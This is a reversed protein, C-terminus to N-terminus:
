RSLQRSTPVWVWDSLQKGGRNVLVKVRCLRERAGGKYRRTPGSTAKESRRPAVIHRLITCGVFTLFDRAPMSGCAVSSTRSKEICHHFFSSPTRSPSCSDFISPALPSRKRGTLSGLGSRVLSLRAADTPSAPDPSRQYNALQKEDIANDFHLHREYLGDTGRFQIPDCGYQKLLKSPDEEAAKAGSAAIGKTSM